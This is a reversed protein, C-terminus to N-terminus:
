RSPQTPLAVGVHLPPVTETTGREAARSVSVGVEPPTFSRVFRLSDKILNSRDYADSAGIRATVLYWHSSVIVGRCFIVQLPARPTARYHKTADCAIHGHLDLARRETTEESDTHKSTTLLASELQERKWWSPCPREAVEFEVMHDSLLGSYTISALKAENTFSKSVTFAVSSPAEFTFRGHRPTLRQWIPDGPEGPRVDESRLSSDFYLRM